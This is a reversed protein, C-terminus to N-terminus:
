QDGVHATKIPTYNSVFEEKYRRGDPRASGVPSLHAASDESVVLQLTALWWQKAATFMLLCKKALQERVQYDFM